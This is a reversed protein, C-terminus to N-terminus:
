DENKVEVEIMPQTGYQFITGARVDFINRDEPKVTSFYRAQRIVHWMDIMNEMTDTKKTFIGNWKYLRDRLMGFIDEIINRREIRERFEADSHNKYDFNWFAFDNSIDEFQLLRLRFYEELAVELLRMQEENLKIEYTM